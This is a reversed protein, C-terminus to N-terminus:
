KPVDTDGAGVQVGGHTHTSVSIGASVTDGTVDLTDGFTVKGLTNLSNNFTVQETVLLAGNITVNSNFITEPVTVVVRTSSDVTIDGDPALKITSTGNEIVIKTPDVEKAIGTPYFCPKVMASNLDHLSLTQSDYVASGDSERFLSLDRESVSVEVIDGIVLPVTFRAKGGNASYIQYPLNELEPFPLQKNDPYKTSVVPQVNCRNLQHDVKTIRAPFSTHLDRTKENWFLDWM